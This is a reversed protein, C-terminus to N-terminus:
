RDNDRNKYFTKINDIEDKINQLIEFSNDCVHGFLFAFWGIITCTKIFISCDKTVEALVAIFCALSLQKLLWSVKLHKM